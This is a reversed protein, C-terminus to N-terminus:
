EQSQFSTLPFINSVVMTLQLSLATSHISRYGISLLILNWIVDITNEYIGLGQMFLLGLGQTVFGVLSIFGIHWSMM